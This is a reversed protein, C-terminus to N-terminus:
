ASKLVDTREGLFKVYDEAVLGRMKMDEWESKSVKKKNNREWHAKFKDEYHVANTKEKQLKEKMSNGWVKLVLKLVDDPTIKYGIHDKNAEVVIKDLIIKTDPRCPIASRSKMKKESQPQTKKTSM